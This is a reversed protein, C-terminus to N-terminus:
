WAQLEPVRLEAWESARSVRRGAWRALRAISMEVRGNALKIHVRCRFPLPMTAVGSRCPTVSVTKRFRNRFRIRIFPFTVSFVLRLILTGHAGDLRETPTRTPLRERVDPSLNFQKTSIVSCLNRVSINM